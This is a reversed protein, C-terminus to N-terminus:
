RLLAATVGQITNIGYTMSPNGDTMVAISFTRRHGELRAIQHVLQGLGTSRWGGKFFVKYGLPRAIAPIGWSEYAAITSLLSRAYAVFESPILSDMEFFFRAQDGPSIEADAWFGSISFDSMGAARAVSYLGGAGVISWCRTAASNDSVNIMPYLISNSHRDVTHKGIAHLRRLYAVLLMAKVVSATVFTSHERIGSVRGESDVVALATRGARRALYAKAREIATPGPFGAPLSGAGHYGRGACDPPRRPDALARDGPARFCAEWRFHGAPLTVAASLVMVYPSLRVARTSPAAVFRRHLGSAFSWRVRAHGWRLDRPHFVVLTVKARGLPLAKLKTITRGTVALRVVARSRTGVFTASYRADRDPFVTFSFSGNAATLTSGVLRRVRYPYPREYLVVSGGPPAGIVAGSLTVPHGATVSARSATMTVAPSLADAAAWGLRVGACGAWALLGVLGVRM